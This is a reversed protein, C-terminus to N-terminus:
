CYGGERNQDVDCLHRCLSTYGDGKLSSSQQSCEHGKPYESVGTVYYKQAGPTESM